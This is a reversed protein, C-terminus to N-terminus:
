DEEPQLGTCHIMPSLSRQSACCAGWATSLALLSTPQHNAQWYSRLLKASTAQKRDTDARPSVLMQKERVVRVSAGAFALRVVAAPDAM